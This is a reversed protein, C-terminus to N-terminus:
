RTRASCASSSCRAPRATLQDWAGLGRQVCTVMPIVHGLLNGCPASPVARLVAVGLLLQM